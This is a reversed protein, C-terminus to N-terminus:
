QITNEQYWVKNNYIHYKNNIKNESLLINNKKKLDHNHEDDNKSIIFVAHPM